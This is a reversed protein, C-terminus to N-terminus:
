NLKINIMLFCFGNEEVVIMKFNYILILYFFIINKLIRNNERLINIIM